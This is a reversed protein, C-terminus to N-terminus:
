FDPDWDVEVRQAAIDVQTIVDPRLWPILIENGFLKEGSRNEREDNVVMVDNAGTEFLRKVTGLLAQNQDVVLCGILDTWYFEDSALAPLETRLVAIDLGLYNAAQERSDVGELKAIVNKGQEKGNLLVVPSWGAASKLFWRKYKVINKRPNTDSHVKLWGQVGFFGVIRGLVIHEEGVPDPPQM